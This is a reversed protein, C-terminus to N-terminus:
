LIGGEGGRKSSLVQLLIDLGKKLEKIDNAGSLSLRIYNPLPTSGVIFKDSSVVNIGYERAAKEFASSTWFSPLQLWVFMNHEAYKYSYGQLKDKLIGARKDIEGKRLKIIKQAIGSTICECAIAVCLPSVMWMTDVVAQSIRNCLRSPAAVFGVRLGAYFAKSLGAIYVSNEPVHPTLACEAKDSLFGYLDDEVLLLDHKKIVNAIDLKRQQSMTATTPNQMCGVTYVGKISHRNCLAELDDPLMGEDDMPVGELRIGCRRALSKVGPYTLYDVAIRDGPEFVSTFLCTIAHQAGATVVINEAKTRVGFRKMWNAGIQRHRPLGQPPIYQMLTQLDSRQSVREMVDRLDTEVSYLPLVLGMEILHSDRFETNVLSSNFGLDSTVFTGNGVMATILGRREAEKYARTATTLTVGVIKALERQTPVRDGPLLVGERIDKELADAIALYLAKNVDIVKLNWM